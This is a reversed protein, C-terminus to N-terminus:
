NITQYYQLIENVLYRAAVKKDQVPLSKVLGDKRLITLKTNKSEMSTLPNLVIMDLNKEKLKKWASKLQKSYNGEELAFGVVTQNIHKKRSISKLIDPNPKLILNLEKKSRRIKGPFFRQPRWDSVAAAGVIIRVKGLYRKVVALMERASIVKKWILKKRKLPEVGAGAVVIVSWNRRLFEEALYKGQLGSSANSIFRVRDFYERTPGTTILVVKKM